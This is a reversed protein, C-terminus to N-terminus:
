RTQRIARDAKGLQLSTQRVGRVGDYDSSQAKQQVGLEHAALTL